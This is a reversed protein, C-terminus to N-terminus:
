DPDDHRLFQVCILTGDAMFVARQHHEHHHEKLFIAFNLSNDALTLMEARECKHKVHFDASVSDRVVQPVDKYKIREGMMMYNFTIWDFYLKIEEPPPSGKKKIMVEIQAGFPCLSDKEAHKIKYGPYNTTIFTIISSPLSDINIWDPPHHKHHLSDADDPKGGGPFNEGDGLFSGNADFALQEETSLTVIYPAPSNSVKTASFVNADPYYDSVYTTVAPPLDAVNMSSSSVSNSSGSNDKKCSFLTVLCIFMIIEMKKM